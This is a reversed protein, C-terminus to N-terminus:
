RHLMAWYHSDDSSFVSSKSIGHRSIRVVVNDSCALGVALSAQNLPTAAATLAPLAQNVLFLPTSTQM